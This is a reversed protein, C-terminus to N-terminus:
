CLLHWMVNSFSFLHQFGYKINSHQNSSRYSVWNQFRLWYVHSAVSILTRPNTINAGFSGELTTSRHTLHVPPRTLLTYIQRTSRYYGHIGFCLSVTETGHLWSKQSICLPIAKKVWLQGLGLISLM